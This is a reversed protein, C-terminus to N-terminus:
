LEGAHTIVAGNQIEDELNIKVQGDAVLEKLLAHMNNAYAQSAHLPVLSPLNLTGVIVVGGPTTITEGPKTLECNGRGHEPAAAMDVIVAGRPMQEVVGAPILMPPAKGFVAATTIVVDAGIVHRSMLATQKRRQEETQERAYGGATEADATELQLEVFRAGLSQVQE